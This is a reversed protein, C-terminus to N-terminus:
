LPVSASIRDLMAQWWLAGGHKRDAGVVIVDLADASPLRLKAQYERKLYPLGEDESGYHLIALRKGSVALARFLGNIHGDDGNFGYGIIAVIDSAAFEDYLAVYRKSMEISTLPKIGSQTFLLPVALHPYAARSEEDAQLISNCYPDYYEKVCGNLHYVPVDLGHDGLIKEAFHNYNSTGISRIAAHDSLQLLDHYYGPGDRLREAGTAEFSVIYRRVTHLFISIRTFKAWHARPNYLYRFHSDILAQYDLVRAYIDELIAFALQFMADALPSHGHVPSPRGELVLEMGTHGISRYDLSFIGSLDDFVSLEEPAAEFLEENLKTILQQGCSGVLLELIARVAQRLQRHRPNLDLAKLLASFFASNFLTVQDALKANLKVAQGYLVDGISSGSQELFLARLEEEGLQWNGLLATVHTDFDDLYAMIADRRYELSSMIIGEFDAKGFLHVRKKPYDSPLWKAAYVSTNNLRELQKRFTAKDEDAATRFLELAFKGGSPLGYAIEAGAGFFFSISPKAM